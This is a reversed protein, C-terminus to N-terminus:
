SRDGEGHLAQVIPSIDTLRKPLRNKREAYGSGIGLLIICRYVIGNHYEFQSEGTRVNYSVNEVSFPIQTVFCVNMQGSMAPKKVSSNEIKIM